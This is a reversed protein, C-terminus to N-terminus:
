VFFRQDVQPPFPFLTYFEGFLIKSLLALDEMLM